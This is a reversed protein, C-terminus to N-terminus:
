VIARLNDLRWAELFNAFERRELTHTTPQLHDPFNIDILKKAEYLGLGSAAHFLLVAAVRGIQDEPINRPPEEVPREPITTIWERLIAM